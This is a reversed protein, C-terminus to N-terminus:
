EDDERKRDKTHLRLFFFFVFLVCHFYLLRFVKSLCISGYNKLDQPCDSVGPFYKCPLRMENEFTFPSFICIKLYSELETYFVFLNLGSGLLEFQQTAQSRTKCFFCIVIGMSWFVIFSQSQYHNPTYTSLAETHDITAGSFPSTDNVSLCPTFSDADFAASLQETLCKTEWEYGCKLYLVSHLCVKSSQLFCLFEAVKVAHHDTESSAAISPSIEELIYM